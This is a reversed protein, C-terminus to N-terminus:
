RLDALVSKLCAITTRIKEPQGVEAVLREFGPVVAELEAGYGSRQDATLRETLYIPPGPRDGVLPELSITGSINSPLYKFYAEECRLLLRTIEGTAQENRPEFMEEVAEHLHKQWAVRPANLMKGALRLCIEDGPNAIIHFFYECARGGDAALAAIHEGTRRLTPLFWRDRRWHQPPEVQPGGITGFDCAMSAILRRRLGEHEWQQAGRADIFYDAMKGIKQLSPVSAEDGLPLGWSNVGIIKGSWQARIYESVRVNILAHYEATSYESCKPCECRGQDASQMSVGDIPFRSFVFDIVKEMWLWADPDSACMAYPSTPALKPHAKIIERFGWSYVGLGSLVKIGHRHAAEILKEVRRGRDPPVCSTIDLPWADSVYLGWISIENFGLRALLEYQRRYDELLRDDLRMSPWAAHPDPQSSLDTIWGLYGRHRFGVDSGAPSAATCLAGNHAPLCRSGLWAAGAKLIDRRLM